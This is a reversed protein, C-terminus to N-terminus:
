VCLVGRIVGLTRAINLGVGVVLIDKFSSGLVVELFYKIELRKGRVRIGDLKFM